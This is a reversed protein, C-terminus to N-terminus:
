ILWFFSSNDLRTCSSSAKRIVGLSYSGGSAKQTRPVRPNTVLEQLRPRHVQGERAPGSMQRVNERVKVSSSLCSVPSNFGKTPFNMRQHGPIPVQTKLLIQDGLHINDWTDDLHSSLPLSGLTFPSPHVMMSLEFTLTLPLTRSFSSCMLSKEIKKRKRKKREM